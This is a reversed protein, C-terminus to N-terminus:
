RRSYIKRRRSFVSSPVSRHGYRFYAAYETVRYPEGEFDETSPIVWMWERECGQIKELLESYFSLQLITAAKTERALKTDVVEYSWGWNASRKAVRQLVDPRGFWEGEALAGQAIAEAGQEMSRRTEELLKEQDRIHALNVVSCNKQQALYSLYAAEHREGRKRMVVLNPTAWDPVQKEGRAVKLDLTTVHRCALHNSLDTAALRIQSSFIKM